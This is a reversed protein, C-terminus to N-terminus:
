NLYKNKLNRYLNSISQIKNVPHDNDTDFIVLSKIHPTLQNFISNKEFVPSKSSIYITKLTEPISTIPTAVGRLIVEKLSPAWFYQSKFVDQYYDTNLLYLNLDLLLLTPPFVPLSTNSKILKIINMSLLPDLKLSQINSASFPLEITKFFDLDTALIEINRVTKPIIKFLIDEKEMSIFNYRVSKLGQFREFNIDSSRNFLSIKIFQINSANEFKCSLHPANASIKILSQPFGRKAEDNKIAICSSLKLKKLTPPLLGIDFDVKFMTKDASGLSLSTISTFSKTSFLNKLLESDKKNQKPQFISDPLILSKLNPSQKLSKIPSGNNHNFHGLLVLYELTVPLKELISSYKLVSNPGMQFKRLNNPFYLENFPYNDDIILSYLQNPLMGELIPTSFEHNLILYRLNIAKSLHYNILIKELYQGLGLSVLNYIPQASPITKPIPKKKIKSLFSGFLSPSPSSSSSSQDILFIEINAQMKNPKNNFIISKLTNPLILKDIDFVLNCGKIEIREINSPLKQLFDFLSDSNLFGLSIVLSTIQTKEESELFEVYNKFEKKKLYLRNYYKLYDLIKQKLLNNKWINNFLISERNDSQETSNNNDM